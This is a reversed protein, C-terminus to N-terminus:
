HTKCCVGLTGYVRNNYKITTRTTMDLIAAPGPKGEYALRGTDTYVRFSVIPEAEPFRHAVEVFRPIDYYWLEPNDHIALRITEALLRGRLEAAQHREDYSLTLYTVPMAVSIVLWTMLALIRMRNAFQRSFGIKNIM